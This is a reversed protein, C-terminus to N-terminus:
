RLFAGNEKLRGRLADVDLAHVDDSGERVSMAAATGAAQGTVVCVPMTRISGQVPRDCSICRGAVLVNRIGEPTLCRYPIGHSEGPGYHEFRDQVHDHGSHSKKIEAKSTHIDIWYNNRAIEDPFTRRANYDDVNLVYDGVIRRTERIGLSPATPLAVANGFAEPVFEALAKQYAAAIKRGEILGKSVSKPDTGDVDWLHGANFMAMRPGILENCCHPDAIEPYKGSKLIDYIRCGKNSAHLRPGNLYAYEDVNTMLFCLSAPQMEGSQGDGKEFRAGAWAAVDGDGTCDVYVAARFASLGSKNSAIITEVGGKGDGEVSAIMTNFLIEAGATTVLEDYLRKLQEPNFVVWDLRDRPVHPVAPKTGELLEEAIGRYVLNGQKDSFPAWITVLGSTGMGGLSGTAEILLTRAGERASAIAAACGSPGGGTVIVEYSDDLAISREKMAFRTM